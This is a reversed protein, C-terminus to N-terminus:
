YAASRGQVLRVIRSIACRLIPIIRTLNRECCHYTLRCGLACTLSSELPKRVDSLWNLDLM